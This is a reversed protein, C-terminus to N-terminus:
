LWIWPQIIFLSLHMFYFDFHAIGSMAYLTEISTKLHSIIDIGVLVWM